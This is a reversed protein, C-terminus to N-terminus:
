RSIGDDVPALSRNHLWMEILKSRLPNWSSQFTTNGSSRSRCRTPPPLSWRTPPPSASDRKHARGIGDLHDLARGLDRCLELGVVDIRNQQGGNSRQARAGHARQPVIELFCANGRDRDRQDPRLRLIRVAPPRQPHRKFQAPRDPRRAVRRKLPPHDQRREPQEPTGFVGYGPRDIERIVIGRSASSGPM